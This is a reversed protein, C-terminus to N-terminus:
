NQLNYELAYKQIKLEKIDGTHKSLCRNFVQLSIFIFLCIFVSVTKECDKSKEVDPNRQTNRDVM